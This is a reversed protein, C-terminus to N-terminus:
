GLLTWKRKREGSSLLLNVTLGLGYVIRNHAAAEMADGMKKNVKM